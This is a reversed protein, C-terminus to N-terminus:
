AMMNRITHFLIKITVSLVIYQIIGMSAKGDFRERMQDVSHMYDYNNTLPYKYSNFANDGIVKVSSPISIKEISPKKPDIRSEFCWNNIIEVGDPIIIDSGQGTYKKLVGNTINLGSSQDM